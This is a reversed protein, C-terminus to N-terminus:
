IKEIDFYSFTFTADATMITDAGTLTSLTFPALTSPFCDAFKFRYNGRQNSDLITLTADSYQPTKKNAYPSQKSLNKYEDFKIPFTIGRMWDHIEKWAKLDEDVLFTITLPDYMLKEGPVNLDVFPTNRQVPTLNIGPLNVTQCFFQMNPLRIFSLVFRNPVLLNTNTPQLLGM